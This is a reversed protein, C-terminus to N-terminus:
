FFENCLILPRSNLTKRSIMPELVSMGVLELVFSGALVLGVVLGFSDFREFPIM